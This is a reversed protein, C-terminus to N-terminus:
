SDGQVVSKTNNLTVLIEIGTNRQNVRDHCTDFCVQASSRRRREDEEVIRQLTGKDVMLPFSLSASVTSQTRKTLCQYLKLFIPQIIFKSKLAKWTVLQKSGIVFSFYRPETSLMNQM